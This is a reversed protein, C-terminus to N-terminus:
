LHAYAILKNENLIYITKGEQGVLGANKFETFIRVLTENTTGIIDAMEERTLKINLRVRGTDQIGHTDKLALLLRAFRERTNNHILEQCKTDSLEMSASLERLIKIALEPSSAITSFITEKPFFSIISDEMAVASALYVGGCFLSRYGFINGPFILRIISEQGESTTLVLKVAGSYVCFVGNSTNGQFFISQNKKYTNSTCNPRIEELATQELENLFCKLKNQCTDLCPQKLIKQM